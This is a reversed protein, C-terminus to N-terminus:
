SSVILHRARPIIPVLDKKKEERSKLKIRHPERAKAEELM